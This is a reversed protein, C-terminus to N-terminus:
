ALKLGGNNCEPCRPYSVGSVTIKPLSTVEELTLYVDKGCYTCVFHYEIEENNYFAKEASRLGFRQCIAELDWVKDAKTNLTYKMGDVNYVVNTGMTYTKIGSYYTSGSNYGDGLYFIGNTSNLQGKTSLGGITINANGKLEVTNSAIANTEIKRDSKIFYITDTSTTAM